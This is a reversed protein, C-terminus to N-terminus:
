WKGCGPTMEGIPIIFKCKVLYINTANLKMYFLKYQDKQFSM